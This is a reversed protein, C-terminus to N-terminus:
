TRPAVVGTSVIVQDFQSKTMNLLLGTKNMGFGELPAKIVREGSRLVAGDNAVNEITAILQGATDYVPKGVVVEAPQAARAVNGKGASRKTAKDRQMKHRVEDISAPDTSLDPEQSRVLLPEGGGGAAGGPATQLAIASSASICALGVAIIITRM